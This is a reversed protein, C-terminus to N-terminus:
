SQPMDTLRRRQLKGAATRPLASVFRFERPCKFGALHARCHEALAHSDVTVADKAVIWAVVTSGLDADPVGTV